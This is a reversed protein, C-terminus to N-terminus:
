KLKRLYINIKIVHKIKFRKIDVVCEQENCHAILFNPIIFNLSIDAQNLEILKM